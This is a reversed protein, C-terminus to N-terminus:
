QCATSYPMTRFSTNFVDLVRINDIRPISLENVPSGLYKEAINISAISKDAAEGTDAAGQKWLMNNGTVTDTVNVSQLPEPAPTEEIAEAPPEEEDKDKVKPPNISERAPKILPKERIISAPTEMTGAEKLLPMAKEIHFADENSYGASPKEIIPAKTEQMGTESINDIREPSNLKLPNLTNLAQNPHQASPAISFFLISPFIMLAFFVSIRDRIHMSPAPVTNELISHIRAATKSVTSVFPLVLAPNRGPNHQWIQNLLFDAYSVSRNTVHIVHSDCIHELEEHIKRKAWHFVPHFFYAAGIISEILLWWNHHQQLHKLEHLLTFRLGERFENKLLHGPIIIGPRFFGMVM